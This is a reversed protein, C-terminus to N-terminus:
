EVHTLDWRNLSKSTISHSKNNFIDQQEAQRATLRAVEERLTEIQQLLEAPTAMNQASDADETHQTNFEDDSEIEKYNIQKLKRLVLPSNRSM